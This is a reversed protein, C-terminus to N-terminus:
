MPLSAGEATVNSGYSEAVGEAVEALEQELGDGTDFVFEVGSHLVGTGVVGHEAVVNGEEAAKAFGSRADFAVSFGGTVGKSHASGVDEIALHRLIFLDLFCPSPTAPEKM